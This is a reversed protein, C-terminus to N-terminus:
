LLRKLLLPASKIGDIAHVLSSPARTHHKQHMDLPDNKFKTVKEENRFVYVYM